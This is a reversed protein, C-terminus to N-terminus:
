LAQGYEELTNDGVADLSWTSGSNGSFYAEGGAYTSSGPQYGWVVMNPIGADPARVVIAHKSNKSVTMEPMVFEIWTYTLPPIISGDVSASVIDAGTPKGTGDVDRISLTIIGPSTAGRFLIIKMSVLLHDRNEGTTGTTITQARWVAGRMQRGADETNYIREFLSKTYPLTINHWSEIGRMKVFDLGRALWKDRLIAAETLLLPGSYKQKLMELEKAYGQYFFRQVDVGVISKVAQEIEQQRAATVKQRQAQGPLITGQIKKAYKETRQEATRM